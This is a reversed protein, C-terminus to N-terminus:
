LRRIIIKINTKGSELEVMDSREKGYKYRVKNIIRREVRLVRIVM